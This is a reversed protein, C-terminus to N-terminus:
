DHRQGDVANAGDTEEHEGNQQVEYEVGPPFPNATWLKLGNAQYVICVGGAAGAQIAAPSYVFTVVAETYSTQLFDPGDEASPTTLYHQVHINFDVLRAAVEPTECVQFVCNEIVSQHNYNKVDHFLRLEAPTM